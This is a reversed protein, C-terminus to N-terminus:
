GSDLADQITPRIRPLDHTAVSWHPEAVFRERGVGVSSGIRDIADLIHRLYLTDSTM